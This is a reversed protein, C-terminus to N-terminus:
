LFGKGWLGIGVADWAHTQFDECPEPGLRKVIRKNIVEKPLQGKWDAVPVPTVEIASAKFVEVIRGACVALKVLADTRAVTQGGGSEMFKPWEILMHRWEPHDNVLGWWQDISSDLRTMWDKSKVRPKVLGTEIPITQRSWWKAEWCAWGGEIGPDISVIEGKSGVIEVNVSM